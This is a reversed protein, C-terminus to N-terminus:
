SRHKYNFMWHIISQYKITYTIKVAKQHQKWQQQVTQSVSNVSLSRYLSMVPRTLRIRVYFRRSTKQKVAYNLFTFTLRRLNQEPIFMDSVKTWVNHLLYSCSNISVAHKILCVNIIIEYRQCFNIVLTIVKCRWRYRSLM